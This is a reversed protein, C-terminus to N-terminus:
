AAENAPPLIAFRARRLEDRRRLLERFSVDAPSRPVMRLVSEAAAFLVDFLRRESLFRSLAREAVLLDLEHRTQALTAGTLKATRAAAWAARVKAHAAFLADEDQERLVDDRLLRDIAFLRDASPAKEFLALLEGRRAIVARELEELGSAPHSLSLSHTRRAM